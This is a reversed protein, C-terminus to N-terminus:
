RRGRPAWRSTPIRAASTGSAPPPRSYSRSRAPRNTSIVSASVPSRTRAAEASTSLAAGASGVTGDSSTRGSPYTAHAASGPYTILRSSVNQAARSVHTPTLVLTRAPDEQHGRDPRRPLSRAPHSPEEARRQPRHDAMWRSNACPRRRLPRWRIGRLAPRTRAVAAPHALHVRHGRPRHRRRNPLAPQLPQAARVAPHQREPQSIPLADHLSLTYTDSLSTKSVCPILLTVHRIQM